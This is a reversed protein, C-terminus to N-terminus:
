LLGLEGCKDRLEAVGEVRHAALGVARAGAVNEPTDDFFLIEGPAVKLDAVVAEFVAAEPKVLGMRFSLYQRDFYGDFGFEGGVRQWHLPNTNSLCATRYRRKLADLLQYIGPFPPRAWSLFLALFAEPAVPIRWEEVFRRAFDEPGIRGVEFAVVAPSALWDSRVEFVSQDPRWLRQIEHVGVFENVINGLDFLLVPASPKDSATM